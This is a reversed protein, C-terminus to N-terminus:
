TLYTIRGMGVRPFLDSWKIIASKPCIYALNIAQNLGLCFALIGESFLQPKKNDLVTKKSYALDIQKCSTYYPPTLYVALM